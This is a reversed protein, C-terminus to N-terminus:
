PEGYTNEQKIKTQLNEFEEKTGIFPFYTESKYPVIESSDFNEWNNSEILTTVAQHNRCHILKEKIREIVKELYEIESARGLLGERWIWQGLFNRIEKKDLGNHIDENKM